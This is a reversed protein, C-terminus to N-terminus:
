KKLIIILGSQNIGFNRNYWSIIIDCPYRPKNHYLRTGAGPNSGPYLRDVATRMAVKSYLSYFHLVSVMRTNCRQNQHSFFKRVM